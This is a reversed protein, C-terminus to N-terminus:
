RLASTNKKKILILHLKLLILMLFIENKERMRFGGEQVLAMFLKGIMPWIPLGCVLTLVLKMLLM